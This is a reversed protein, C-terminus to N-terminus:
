ISRGRPNCEGINIESESALLAEIQFKRIPRRMAYCPAGLSIPSLTHDQKEFSPKATRSCLHNMDDLFGISDPIFQRGFRYFDPFTLRLGKWLSHANTCTNEGEPM